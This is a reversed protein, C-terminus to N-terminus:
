RWAQPEKPMRTWARWTKRYNDLKYTYERYVYEGGIKFIRTGTLEGKNRDVKINMVMFGLSKAWCGSIAIKHEITLLCHKGLSTKRIIKPQVKDLEISRAKYRIMDLMRWLAEKENRSLEVDKQTCILNKNDM